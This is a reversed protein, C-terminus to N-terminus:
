AFFFLYFLFIVLYVNFINSGVAKTYPVKNAYLTRDHSICAEENETSQNRMGEYVYYKVRQIQPCFIPGNKQQQMTTKRGRYVDLTMDPRDTLRVM